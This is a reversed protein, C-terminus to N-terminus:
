HFIKREHESKHREREREDCAHRLEGELGHLSGHTLPVYLSRRDKGRLQRLHQRVRQLVGVQAVLDVEVDDLLGGRLGHGRLLAM